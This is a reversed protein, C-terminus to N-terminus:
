VWAPSCPGFTEALTLLPAMTAALEVLGSLEFEAAGLTLAGEFAVVDGGMAAPFDVEVLFEFLLQRPQPPVPQLLAQAAANGLARATAPSLGRALASAEAEEAAAATENTPSAYLFKTLIPEHHQAQAARLKQKWAATHEGRRSVTQPVWTDLRPGIEAWDRGALLPGDAEVRGAAGVGWYSHILNGPDAADAQLM